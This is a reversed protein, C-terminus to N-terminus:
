RRRRLLLLGGTTLLLLTAPEPTTFAEGGTGYAWEECGSESEETVGLKCYLYIYAQGDSGFAEEPVLMLMDGDGSGPGLLSADLIVTNGGGADLDYVPTGLESDDLNDTDEVYLRVEDLSILSKDGGAENVDLLFECYVVGGVTVRPPECVKLWTADKTDYELTNTTNYGTEEGGSAPGQIQLFPDIRGEGTSDEPDFQHFLAGNASGQSGVTTLYIVDAGAQAVMLALVGLVVVTLTPARRSSM